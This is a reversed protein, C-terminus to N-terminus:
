LRKFKIEFSKLIFHGYKQFFSFFVVDGFFVLLVLRPKLKLTLPKEVENHNTQILCHQDGKFTM